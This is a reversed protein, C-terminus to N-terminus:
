AWSKQVYMMRPGVRAVSGPPARNCNVVGHWITPFSIPHINSHTANSLNWVIEYGHSHLAYELIKQELSKLPAAHFILELNPIGDNLKRLLNQIHNQDSLRQIASHVLAIGSKINEATMNGVDYKMFWLPDKGGKTIKSICEEVKLNRLYYEIKSKQSIQEDPLGVLRPLNSWTAIEMSVYMIMERIPRENLVGSLSNSNQFSPKRPFVMYFFSHGCTFESCGGRLSQGMSRKLLPWQLIYRVMNTCLNLLEPECCDPLEPGIDVCDRDLELIVENYTTEGRKILKNYRQSAILSILTDRPCGWIIDVHDSVSNIVRKLRSQPHLDESDVYISRPDDNGCIKVLQKKQPLVAM